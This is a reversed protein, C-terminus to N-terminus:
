RSFSRFIAGVADQLWRPKTAPSRAALWAYGDVRRFVSWNRTGIVFWGEWLLEAGVQLVGALSRRRGLVRGPAEVSKPYSGLLLKVFRHRYSIMVAQKSLSNAPPPAFHPIRLASHPTRFASHRRSGQWSGRLHVPAVHLAPRGSDPLRSALPVVYVFLDPRSQSRREQM